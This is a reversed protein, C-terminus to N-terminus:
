VGLLKQEKIRKSFEIIQEKSISCFYEEGSKSLLACIRKSINIKSLDNFNIIYSRKIRIFVNPDLKAFILGINSTVTEKRNKELFFTSYNGEAKIYIIDEPAIFVLGNISRFTLKQRTITPSLDEGESAIMSKRKKNEARKKLLENIKNLLSILASQDEIPDSKFENFGLFYQVYPNEKIFDLAKEDSLGELQKIILVGIIFKINQESHSPDSSIQDKYASLANKSLKILIEWHMKRSLVIWRNNQDLKNGLQSSFNDIALSNAISYQLM